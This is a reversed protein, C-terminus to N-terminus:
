VGYHRRILGQLQYYREDSYKGEERGENLIELAEEYTIKGLNDTLNEKARFYDDGSEIMGDYDGTVEGIADPTLGEKAMDIKNDVKFRKSVAGDEYSYYEEGREYYETKLENEKVEGKRINELEKEYREAWYPEKKQPSRTAWM